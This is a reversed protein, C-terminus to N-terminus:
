RVAYGDCEFLTNMDATIKREKDYAAAVDLFERAFSLLHGGYSM